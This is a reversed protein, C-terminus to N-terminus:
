AGIKKFEVIIMNPGLAFNDSAKHLFGRLEIGPNSHLWENFLPAFDDLQAFYFFKTSWM